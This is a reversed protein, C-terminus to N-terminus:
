AGHALSELTERAVKELEGRGDPSRLQDLLETVAEAQEPGLGEAGIAELESLLEEDGLHRALWLSIVTVARDDPRSNIDPSMSM